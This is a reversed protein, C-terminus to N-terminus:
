PVFPRFYIPFSAFALAVAFLVQTGASWLFWGMYSPHRVLSFVGHTVLEHRATRRYSIVHTFSAGATLMAAKRLVEGTACVLLGALSVLLCCKAGSAKIYM